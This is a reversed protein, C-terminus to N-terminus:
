QGEGMGCGVEVFVSVGRVSILDELGDWSNMDTESYPLEM